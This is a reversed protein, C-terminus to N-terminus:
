IAPQFGTYTPSPWTCRVRHLVCSPWLYRKILGRDTNTTDSRAPLLDKDECVRYWDRYFHYRKSENTTHISNQRLCDDLLEEDNDDPFALCDDVRGCCGHRKYEGDQLYPSNEITPCVECHITNPCARLILKNPNDV